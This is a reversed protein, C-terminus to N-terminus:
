FNLDSLKNTLKHSGAQQHGVGVSLQGVHQRRLRDLLATKLPQKLYM